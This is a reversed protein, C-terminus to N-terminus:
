KLFFLVTEKEAINEEVVREDYKDPTRDHVVFREQIRVHTSSNSQLIRHMLRLTIPNERSTQTPIQRRGLPFLSLITEEKTSGVLLVIKQQQHEIIIRQDDQQTKLNSSEHEIYVFKLKM